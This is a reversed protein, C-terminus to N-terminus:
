MCLFARYYITLAYPANDNSIWPLAKRAISSFRKCHVLVTSTSHGCDVGLQDLIVVKVLILM